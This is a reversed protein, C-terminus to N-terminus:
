DRGSRFAILSDNQLIRYHFAPKSGLIQWATILWANDCFLPKKHTQECQEPTVKRPQKFSDLTIAEYDERWAFNPCAAKRRAWSASLIKLRRAFCDPAATPPLVVRINITENTGYIGVIRGGL